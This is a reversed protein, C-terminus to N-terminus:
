GIDIREVPASPRSAWRREHDEIASRLAAVLAATAESLHEFTEPRTTRLIRLLQCLPCLQCEPSDTALPLGAGLSGGSATRAWEQVAEFLRAAEEAASGLRAEGGDSATTM